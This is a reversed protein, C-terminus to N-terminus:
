LKRRPWLTWYIICFGAIFGSLCIPIFLEEAFAGSGLGVGGSLLGATCTVFFLICGSVASLLVVALSGIFAGVRQWTSPSVGAARPVAIARVYAPIALLLSGIGLGVNVLFAVAIIGVLLLALPISIGPAMAPGSLTSDGPTEYPNVEDQSEEANESPDRDEM